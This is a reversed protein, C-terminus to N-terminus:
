AIFETEKLVRQLRTHNLKANKKNSRSMAFFFDYMLLIAERYKVVLDVYNKDLKVIGDAHIEEINNLLLSTCENFPTEKEIGYKRDFRIRNNASL